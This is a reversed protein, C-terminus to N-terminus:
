SIQIKVKMVMFECKQQKDDNKLNIYSRQDKQSIYIKKVHVSIDALFFLM